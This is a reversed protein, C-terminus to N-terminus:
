GNSWSRRCCTGAPTRRRSSASERLGRGPLASSWWRAWSSPIASGWARTGSSPWACCPQSNARTRAPLTQGRTLCPKAPTGLLSSRKRPSRPGVSDTDDPWGCWFWADLFLPIQPAGKVNATKWFFQAPKGYLPDVAPQNVWGNIGYSGYTGIPRGGSAAVIGWATEADGGLTLTDTAGQPAAVKTASPCLRFKNDRYYYSFLVDIWRGSTSTRKPFFGNNDETYQTWILGWQRLNSQCAVARAQKRVRQLAPMLISMLLAIIAIVVLLEILTFGSGPFQPNRIESKPNTAHIKKL